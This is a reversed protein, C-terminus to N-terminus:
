DPLSARAETLLTRIQEEVGKTGRGMAVLKGDAGPFATQDYQIPFVSNKSSLSGKSHSSLSKRFCLIIQTVVEFTRVFLWWQLASLRNHLPSKKSHKFATVFFCILEMAETKAVIESINIM